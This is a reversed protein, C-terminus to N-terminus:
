RLIKQVTIFTARRSAEDEVVWYADEAAITGSRIEDQRAFQEDPDFIRLAIAEYVEAPHSAPGTLGGLSTAVDATDWDDFRYRVQAVGSAPATMTMIYFTGSRLQAENQSAFTWPGDFQHTHADGLPPIVYAGDLDVTRDAAVGQGVFRGNSVTRDGAVFGDGDFWQGNTYLVTDALAPGASALATTGIFALLSNKFQSM